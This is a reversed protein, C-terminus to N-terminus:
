IKSLEDILKDPETHLRNQLAPDKLITLILNHIYNTIHPTADSSVRLNSLAFQIKKLADQATEPTPM